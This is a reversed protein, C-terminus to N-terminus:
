FFAALLAAIKRTLVLLNVGIQSLKFVFSFIKFGKLAWICALFFHPGFNGFINKEFLFILFCLIHEIYLCDNQWWTQATVYDSSPVTLTAGHSNGGGWFPGGFESPALFM